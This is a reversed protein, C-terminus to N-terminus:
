YIEMDGDDDSDGFLTFPGTEEDRDGVLGSPTGIGLTMDAAEDPDTMAAMGDRGTQMPGSKSMETQSGMAKIGPKPDLGREALGENLRDHDEGPMHFTEKDGDDDVDMSHQHIGGLGLEESVARAEDDTRYKLRGFGFTGFQPDKDPM